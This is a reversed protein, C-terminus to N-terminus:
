LDLMDRHLPSTEAPPTSFVAVQDVLINTEIVHRQVRESQSLYLIETKRTRPLNQFCGRQWNKM